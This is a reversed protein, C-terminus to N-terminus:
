IARMRYEGDGESLVSATKPNVLHIRACIACTVTEYRGDDQDTSGDAVWGQVVLGTNPCRYLFAPM